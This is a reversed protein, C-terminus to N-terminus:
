VEISLNIVLYPYSQITLADHLQRRQWKARAASVQWLPFYVPIFSTGQGKAMPREAM